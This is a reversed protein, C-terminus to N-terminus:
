KKDRSITRVANLLDRSVRYEDVILTGTETYGAIIGISNEQIYTVTEGRAQEVLTTLKERLFDFVPLRVEYCYQCQQAEWEIDGVQIPINGAGDCQTDICKLKERFEVMLEEVSNTQHLM